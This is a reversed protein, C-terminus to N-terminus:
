RDIDPAMWYYVTNNCQTAQGTVNSVWVSTPIGNGDLAAWPSYASPSKAFKAHGDCYAMNHGGSYIRADAQGTYIYLGAPCSAASRSFHWPAALAAANIPPYSYTVGQVSMKGMGQFFLITTAVSNIGTANYNNLYENMAYSDAFNFLIDSAVFSTPFINVEPSSNKFIPYSKTYPYIANGWFSNRLNQSAATPVVGMAPRNAPTGFFSEVNAGASVPLTNPYIDDADALYIQVSTDMQKMNSVDTAKKAAEKAQAFVPFLIAALIAIIAIVVLLEILTFARRM